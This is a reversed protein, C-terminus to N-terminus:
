SNFPLAAELRKVEESMSDLSRNILDIITDIEALMETDYVINKSVGVYKGYNTNRVYVRAADITLDTHAFIQKRAALIKNHLKRYQAPVHKIPLRHNSKVIGHSEMYPKSYEILAFQFAPNILSCSKIEKINHLIQLAENLNGVCSVFHIYEEEQQTIKKM